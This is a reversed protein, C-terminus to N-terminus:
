ALILSSSVISIKLDKAELAAIRSENDLIKQEANEVREDATTGTFNLTTSDRLAILEGDETGSTELIDLRNKLDITEDVNNNFKDRWDILTDYFNIKQFAM